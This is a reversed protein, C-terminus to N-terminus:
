KGNSYLKMTIQQNNQDLLIVRDKLVSILVYDGCRKGLSCSIGGITAKPTGKGRYIAQLKFEKPKTQANGGNTTFMMASNVPTTPDRLNDAAWAVSIICSFMAILLLKGM